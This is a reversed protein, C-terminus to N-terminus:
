LDRPTHSYALFDYIYNFPPAEGTGSVQPYSSMFFVRCNRGVVQGQISSQEPSLILNIKFLYISYIMCSCYNVSFRASEHIFNCPFSLYEQTTKFQNRCRINNWGLCQPIIKNWATDIYSIPKLDDSILSVIPQDSNKCQISVFLLRSLQAIPYSSIDPLLLKRQDLTEVVSLLACIFITWSRHSCSPNGLM